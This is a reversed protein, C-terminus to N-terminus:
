EVLEPDFSRWCRVFDEYAQEDEKRTVRRAETMTLHSM